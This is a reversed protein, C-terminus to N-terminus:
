NVGFKAYTRVNQGDKRQLNHWFAKYIEPRSEVTNFSKLYNKQSQHLFSTHDYSELM